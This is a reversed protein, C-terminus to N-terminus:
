EHHASDEIGVDVEGRARAEDGLRDAHEFYAASQASGSGLGEPLDSQREGPWRKGGTNRQRQHLRQVIDARDFEEAYPGYGDRDIVGPEVAVAKGAGRLDGADHQEENEGQQQDLSCEPRLATEMM